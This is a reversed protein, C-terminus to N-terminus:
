PSTVLTRVTGSAPNLLLLEEGNHTTVLIVIDTGASAIQAIHQGTGLRIPNGPPLFTAPTSSASPVTAQTSPTPQATFRAYLRYIVTGVVVTTGIIILVAM